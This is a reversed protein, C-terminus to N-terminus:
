DIKYKIEFWISIFRQHQALLAFWSHGHSDFDIDSQHREDTHFLMGSTEVSIVKNVATAKQNGLANMPTNYWKQSQRQTVCQDVRMCEAHPPCEMSLSYVTHANRHSYNQIAFWGWGTSHVCSRPVSRRAPHKNASPVAGVDRGNDTVGLRWIMVGGCALCLARCFKIRTETQTRGKLKREWWSHSTRRAVGIERPSWCSFNRNTALQFRCWVKALSSKLFTKFM